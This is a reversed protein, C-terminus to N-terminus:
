PRQGGGPRDNLWQGFDPQRQRQQRNTDTLATSRVLVVDGENLGSAVAAYSADSLGVQVYTKVGNQSSDAAGDAKVLVYSGERDNMLASLPVLVADKEEAVTLTVTGNMGSLLRENQRVSLTVNYTTIGGSSSGLKSIKEVEVPLRVGPLADLALSGQQGPQVSLIDLEDVAVDLVFPQDPYLALVQTGKALATGTQASVESVIGGVSATLVPSELLANLRKVRDALQDRKGVATTYEDTSVANVIKFLVTNRGATGNIKASVDSVVGDEAPYLEYPRNVAAPGEGVVTNGILVQVTQGIQARTDPFTILAGDETLRAVSGTQAQAGTKVRVSQGLALAQSPAIQVQMLGDTSLIVAPRGKLQEQLMGGTEVNVAKVVGAVEPKISKESKQQSLLTLVTAEQADLEAQTAQAADALAEADYNALTQGKEVWDGAAVAIDTLTVDDPLRVREVKDFRLSGTAIVTKTISGKALTVEKYVADAAAPEKSSAANSAAMFATIAAALLILIFIIRAKHKM